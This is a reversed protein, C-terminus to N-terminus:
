AIHIGANGKYFTLNLTKHLIVVIDTGTESHARSETKCLRQHLWGKVYNGKQSPYRSRNATFHSEERTLGRSRTRDQCPLQLLATANMM